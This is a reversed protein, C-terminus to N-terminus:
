KSWPPTVGKMRAYAILQGLHEAMHEGVQLVVRHMTEKGGWFNVKSYLQENNINQIAVRVHDISKRLIEQAVKKTKVSKFSETLVDEPVPLNLKSALYYNTSAVHMLSEKISRIKEAPYWDYDVSSIADSLDIMKKSSSDFMKFFDNKFQNTLNKEQAIVQFTVGFLILVILLFLRCHFTKAYHFISNTIIM